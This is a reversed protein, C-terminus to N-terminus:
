IDSGSLLFDTVCGVEIVYKNSKLIKIKVSLLDENFSVYKKFLIELDKKLNRILYLPIEPEDYLDFKNVQVELKSSLNKM